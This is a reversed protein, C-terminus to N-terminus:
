ATEGPGTVDDLCLNFRKGMATHEQRKDPAPKEGDPAPFTSISLSHSATKGAGKHIDLQM